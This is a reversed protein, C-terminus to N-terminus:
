CLHSIMCKRLAYKYTVLMFHFRVLPLLLVTIAILFPWLILSGLFFVFFIVATHYLGDRYNHIYPPLGVGASSM